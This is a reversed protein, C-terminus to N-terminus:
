SSLELWSEHREAHRAIEELISDLNTAVAWGWTQQALSSDLVMWPIDFPRPALDSGVTHPGFRAECWRSLQALSMANDSGGGINVVRPKSSDVSEAWQRLLLPLLDRPHLCDRTQWGKGNFGIYRLARRRLWSNIWFAFIGQDTRGFQGAGALVGCRNIWVPFGFTEGYELALCESAIKTSGYLSIPPTTSFTETVGAL